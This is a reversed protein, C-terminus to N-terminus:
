TGSVSGSAAESANGPVFLARVSDRGLVLFTMVGTLTGYPIGLCNVGSMVLCFARHRRRSIYRGVLFQLVAFLWGGVFIILGIGAFMSGVVALSPENPKATVNQSAIIMGVGVIVYVLPICAVFATIGARVYHFISLLRLHEQDLIEQQRQSDITM